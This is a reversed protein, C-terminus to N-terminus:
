LLRSLTFSVMWSSTMFPVMRCCPKTTSNTTSFWMHRSHLRALAFGLLQVAHTCTRKPFLLCCCGVRRSNQLSAFMHVHAFCCDKHM